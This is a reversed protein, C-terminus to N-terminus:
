EGGMLCDSLCLTWCGVKVPRGWSALIQGHRDKQERLRVIDNHLRRSDFGSGSRRTSNM